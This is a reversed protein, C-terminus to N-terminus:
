CVFGTDQIFVCPFVIHMNIVHRLATVRLVKVRWTCHRWVLCTLKNNTMGICPHLDLSVLLCLSSFPSSFGWMCTYM